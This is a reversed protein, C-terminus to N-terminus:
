FILRVAPEHATEGVAPPSWSELGSGTWRYWLLSEDELACDFTVTVEAARKDDTMATIEITTGTLEFQDGLKLPNNGNRTLRNFKEMGLSFDLLPIRYMVNRRAPDNPPAFFGRAPKVRITSEDLREITLDDNSTALVRIRAPYPKGKLYRGISIYSAMMPTPLNIIVLQKSSIEPDNPIRDAFQELIKGAGPILQHSGLAMMPALAGHLVLFVVGLGATIRSWAASAPKWDLNEKWLAIVQAVLAMGGLGVFLMLRGSPQTASIPVCSILMGVLWFRTTPDRKILPALSYIMLGIFVMAAIQLLLVGAPVMFMAIDPSPVAWQGLFYLPVAVALGRLFKAPEGMPDIYLEGGSAGFGFSKYAVAWFLGIVAYPLLALWRDRRRKAPDIFLTYAFLYGSTATAAEGAMLAAAFIAPTVLGGARWGDRRWRDHSLITIFGLGATVAANRNAVWGAPLAHLDDIAFFIAALGAAWAPTHTGLLRRYLVAAVAVVVAYWLLSHLHMLMASDPYIRYDIWHTLATGPRLFAHRCDLHTWWPFAGADALRLNLDPENFTFLNFLTAREVPIDTPPGLFKVRHFLDDVQLGGWLAPLNVLVGLVPAVVLPAPWRLLQRLFAQLRNTM